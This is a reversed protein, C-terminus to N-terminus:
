LLGEPIGVAFDRARLPRDSGTPSIPELSVEDILEPKVRSIVRVVAAALSRAIREPASTGVASGGVAIVLGIEGFDLAAPEECRSHRSLIEGRPEPTSRPDPFGDLRRKAANVAGAGSSRTRTKSRRSPEPLEDFFVVM